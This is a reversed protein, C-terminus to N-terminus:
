ALVLWASGALPGRVPELQRQQQEASEPRDDVFQVGFQGAAPV